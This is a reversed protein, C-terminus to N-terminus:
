PFAPYSSSGIVGPGDLTPITIQPWKQQHPECAPKSASNLTNKKFPLFNKSQTLRGAKYM